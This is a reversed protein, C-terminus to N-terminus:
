GQAGGPPKGRVLHLTHGDEMGSVFTHTLTNNPTYALPNSTGSCPFSPFLERCACACHVAGADGFRPTTHEGVQRGGGCRFVGCGWEGNYSELTREDKLIQGRWVLRQETAPISCGKAEIAQKLEEVTKDLEVDVELKDGGATPKIVLKVM